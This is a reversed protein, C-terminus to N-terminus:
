GTIGLFQAEFRKPSLLISKKKAFRNGLHASANYNIVFNANINRHKSECKQNIKRINDIQFIFTQPFFNSTEIFIKARKERERQTHIEQPPVRVSPLVASVHTRAPIRHRDM